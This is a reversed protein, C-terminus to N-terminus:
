GPEIRKKKLEPRLAYAVARRARVLSVTREELPQRLAELAPRAFEPLEDLFLMGNHALTIEGPRVSAGGGILGATTVTHHPARFLRARV